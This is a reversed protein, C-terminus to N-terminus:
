KGGNEKRLEEIRECLNVIVGRIVPSDIQSLENYIAIECEERKDDCNLCDLIRKSLKVSNM